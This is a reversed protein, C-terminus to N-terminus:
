ALKTHWDPCRVMAQPVAKKIAKGYHICDEVVVNVSLKKAIRVKYDTHAEFFNDRLILGSFNELGINKIEEEMISRATEHAASVVYISVSSDIGIKNLREILKYNPYLISNSFKVFFRFGSLFGVIKRVPYFSLLGEKKNKGESVMLTGHFDIMYVKM